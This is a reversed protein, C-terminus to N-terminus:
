KNKIMKEAFDLADNRTLITGAAQEECIQELIHGLERGPQLGFKEMLDNGNLIKPPSIVDGFHNFWGDLIENVSKMAINWRSQTLRKKM